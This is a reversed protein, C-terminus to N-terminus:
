RHIMELCPHSCLLSAVARYPIEETEDDRVQGKVTEWRQCLMWLVVDGNYAVGLVENQGGKEWPVM